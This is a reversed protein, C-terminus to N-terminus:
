GDSGGQTKKLHTLNILYTKEIINRFDAMNKTHGKVDKM